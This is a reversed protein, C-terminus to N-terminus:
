AKRKMTSSLDPRPARIRGPEYNSIDVTFRLQGLRRLLAAITELSAFVRRRGRTNALVAHREGFSMELVFGGKGGRAVLSGVLGASILERLASEQLLAVDRDSDKPRRAM